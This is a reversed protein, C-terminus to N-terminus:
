PWSYINLCLRTCKPSSIINIKRGDYVKLDVEKYLTKKCQYSDFNFVDENLSSFYFQKIIESAGSAGISKCYSTDRCTNEQLDWRWSEKLTSTNSHAGKNASDSELSLVAAKLTYLSVVCFSGITLPSILNSNKHASIKSHM